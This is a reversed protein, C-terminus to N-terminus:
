LHKMICFIQSCYLITIHCVSSSINANILLSHTFSQISNRAINQIRKEKRKMVANYQHDRAFNQQVVILGFWFFIYTPVIRLLLCSIFEENSMFFRIM